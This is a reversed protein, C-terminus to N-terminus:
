IAFHLALFFGSGRPLAGVRCRPLRKSCWRPTHAWRVASVRRQGESVSPPSAPVPSPAAPPWGGLGGAVPVRLLRSQPCQPSRSEGAPPELSPKDSWRTPVRSSTAPAGSRPGPLAAGLLRRSPSSGPGAVWGTDRSTLKTGGDCALTGHSTVGRAMYGNGFPVPVSLCFASAAKPASATNEQGSTTLM